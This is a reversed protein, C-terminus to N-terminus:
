NEGDDPSKQEDNTADTNRLRKKEVVMTLVSAIISLLAGAVAAIVLTFIFQNMKDEGNMSFTVDAVVM